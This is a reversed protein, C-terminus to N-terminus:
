NRGVELGSNRRGLKQRLEWVALNVGMGPAGCELFPGPYKM